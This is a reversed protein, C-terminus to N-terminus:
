SAALVLRLSRASLPRDHRKLAHWLFEGLRGLHRDPCRDYAREREWATAHYHSLEISLRHAQEALSSGGLFRAAAERFLRDREALAARTQWTRQGPGAKLGLAVDPAEGTLIHDLVTALWFEDDRDLARGAGIAAAIRRLREAPRTTRDLLKAESERQSRWSKGTRDGQCGSVKNGLRRIVRWLLRHDAAFIGL